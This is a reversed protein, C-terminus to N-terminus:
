QGYITGMSQTQLTNSHRIDISFPHQEIVGRQEIDGNRNRYVAEVQWLYNGENLLSLNDLVYTLVTEPATALVLTPPNGELFLSFIYANAGELGDWRFTISRDRTLQEIGIVSSDEPQIAPPSPLLPIPLVTFWFPDGPTVGRGNSTDGQIIWYWIGERLPPFTVSSSGADRIIAKPDSTPDSTRSVVLQVNRLPEDSTWQAEPPLRLAQIGPINAGSAPSILTIPSHVEGSYTQINAIRPITWSTQGNQASGAQGVIVFHGEAILGNRGSSTETPSAFGQVTWRFRGSTNNDFFVLLSNNQLSSIETLPINRGEVFLSFKYYNAYSRREWSFNVPKGEEVLLRDNERPTDLIPAELAPTVVLRTPNSIGASASDAGTIRWYYTGPTLFPSQISSGDVAQDMVMPGSFDSRGAIQIRANYSVPNKWSFFLDPTRGAELTFNDPPFVLRPNFGPAASLIPTSSRTEQSLPSSSEKLTFSNVLSPEDNAIIDANMSQVRWFNQGAGSLSSISDGESLGGAYVPHVRWYWQGPDLESTVYSGSGINTQKVLQRIRPRTMEQNAAVELLVAETEEPVSWYFRLLRNGQQLTQVSGDAPSLARPGPTYVIEIRGSDVEELAPAMYAKWYYTGESLEIEMSEADESYWSGTLTSFAGTESVELWVGSNAPSNSRQWLFKVPAKGHTARLIRTGNRPSLIMMPPDALFLGDTGVKLAQGAQVTRTEEGSSLAGSGQFLKMTYGDDAKIGASSRPTLNATLVSNDPINILVMLDSRGSQVQIEGKQLEIAPIEEDQYSVHVSTNESIELIEGNAFNIKATSLATSSITDGNYVTSFRELREWQHRRASLRQVSNDVWYVTGVPKEDMQRLTKNLDQWFFWFSGGMGLICIVVVLINHLLTGQYYNKLNRNKTSKAKGM